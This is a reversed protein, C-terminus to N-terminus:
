AIAYRAKRKRIFGETHLTSLNALIHEEKVYLAEALESVSASGQQTLVRLIGGRVQRNSGSFRSQKRYHASNHSPNRHLRKLMMGYDMLANYWTRPNRRDLTKEVLPLIEDDRVQKRGAFFCHIFVTRINTEICLAPKNFAFAVISAATTTGIGPFTTLTATTQPLTGNFETVVREAIRKLALARRNYGLGQWVKLVSGLSAHALSEFDPFVRIFEQFKPVVRDAQTQQLMIESVVIHYPDRTRRWPLTRGHRKYHDYIMRQFRHITRTTIEDNM